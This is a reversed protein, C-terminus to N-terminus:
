CLALSHGMTRGVCSLLQSHSRSCQARWRQPKHRAQLIQVVISIATRPNLATLVAHELTSIILQEMEREMPGPIGGRPRVQVELTARGTIERARKVECPGYVSVLVESREHSYLASGDARSLYGPTSGVPRIQNPLRGDGRAAM